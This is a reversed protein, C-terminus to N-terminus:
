WGTVFDNFENKEMVVEICVFVCVFMSIVNCFHLNCFNLFTIIVFLQCQNLKLRTHINLCSSPHPVTSVFQLQKQKNLRHPHVQFVACVGAYQRHHMIMVMMMIVMMVTVMMMVMMMLYRDLSHLLLM